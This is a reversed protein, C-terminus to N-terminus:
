AGNGYGGCRRVGGEKTKRKQALLRWLALVWPDERADLERLDQREGEDELKERAALGPVGQEDKGAVELVRGFLREYERKDLAAQRFRQGPAGGKVGTRLITLIAARWFRHATGRQVRIAAVPRLLKYAYRQQAAQVFVASSCLASVQAFPM